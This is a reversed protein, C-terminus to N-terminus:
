LCPNGNEVRGEFISGRILNKRYCRRRFSKWTEEWCCLVPVAETTWSFPELELRYSISVACQRVM